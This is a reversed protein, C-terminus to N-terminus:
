GVRRGRADRGECAAELEGLVDWLALMLQRAKQRQLEGSAPRKLAQFQAYVWLDALEDRGERILDREDTEPDFPGYQALGIGDRRRAAYEPLSLADGTM